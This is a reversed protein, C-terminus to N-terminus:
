RRVPCVGANEIAWTLAYDAVLEWGVEGLTFHLRLPFEEYVTVAKSELYRRANAENLAAPSVHDTGGAIFLLPARSSSRAGRLSRDLAGLELVDDV